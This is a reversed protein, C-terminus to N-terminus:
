KQVMSDCEPTDEDQKMHIGRIIWEVSFLIGMAIYSILGNYLTWTHLSQFASWLAISGNLVFFICWAITVKYTYRVGREPLDPHELRAFREIMSPPRWLTVGFVVLFNLNILAPNLRLFFADNRIFVLLSTAAVGVFIPLFEKAKSAHINKRVAWLRLAFLVFLAGAIWRPSFTKLGFYVCPPYLILLISLLINLVIKM